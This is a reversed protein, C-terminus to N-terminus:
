QLYKKSFEPILLRFAEKSPHAGDDAVYKGKEIDKGCSFESTYVIQIDKNEKKIRDFTPEVESKITLPDCYVLIIFKANPYLEKIRKDMQSVILCFLDSTNESWAMYGNIYDSILRVSYFYSALCKWLPYKYLNLHNDKITYRASYIHFAPIPMATLIRNLHEFQFDYIVYDAQPIKSKLDMYELQYLASGTGTAPIARNYVTKGTAIALVNGMNDNRSLYDGAAYSGGFLIINGNGCGRFVKYIHKYEMLKKNKILDFNDFNFIYKTESLIDKNFYFSRYKYVFAFFSLGEFVFCFILFVLFNYSLIKLCKNM